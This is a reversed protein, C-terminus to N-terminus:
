GGALSPGVPPVTLARLEDRYVTQIAEFGHRRELKRLGFHYRAVKNFHDTFLANVAAGTGMGIVPLTQALVKQSVAINFRSAVQAILRLMAPASGLAVASAVTGAASGAVVAAAEAIMAALTLRATLYASEANDDGPTPGGHSFLSLCELRIAPDGVDEGFEAAIALMSRLMLGTTVPLEVALGALGFLGGAAGAATAAVLHGLGTRGASGAAAEFGRDGVAPGSSVTEAAFNVANQLASQVAGKVKDPLVKQAFWEVPRGVSDSIRLLLNPRELYRVAQRVFELESEPLTLAHNM